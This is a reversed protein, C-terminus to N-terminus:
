NFSFDYNYECFFYKFVMMNSLIIFLSFVVLELYYGLNYYQFRVLYYLFLSLILGLDMDKKVIFDIYIQLLCLVLILM